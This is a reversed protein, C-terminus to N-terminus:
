ESKGSLLRRKREEIAAKADYGTARQSVEQELRKAEAEIEEPTKVEFDPDLLEPNKLPPQAAAPPEVRVTKPAEAPPSAVAKTGVAIVTQAAKEIMPAAVRASSALSSLSRNATYRGLAFAALATIVIPIVAGIITSLINMGLIIVLIAGIVLLVNRVNNMM